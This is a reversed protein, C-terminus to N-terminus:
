NSLLVMQYCYISLPKIIVYYSAFFISLWFSEVFIMRSWPYSIPRAKTNPFTDHKYYYDLLKDKEEYCKYLFQQLVDENCMDETIKHIKFHIGVKSNGCPWEQLLADRIDPVIGKPYGLTCDVLYEIPKRSSDNKDVNKPGVVDLIAKAAGTRPYACNTLPELNNKLAFKAGSEKILYFRSGEPYMVIYGLDNKWYIGNLHDRFDRLVKERKGAGGNIFFNGHATWMFGLPTWKWINFIVWIYRGALTNKNFFSTMLIFHDLLGLHNPMFLVREDQIKTLDDGYEIVQLGTFAGAGVWHDNVLHCVKHELYNFWKHNIWRIPELFIYRILVVCIPVILATMTLWMIAISVNIFNSFNSLPVYEENSGLTDDTIIENKKTTGNNSNGSGGQLMTSGGETTEKKLNLLITSAGEHQHPDDITNTIM